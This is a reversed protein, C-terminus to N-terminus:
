PAPEQEVASCDPARGLVIEADRAVAGQGRLTEVRLGLNLDFAGTAEEGPPRDADAASDLSAALAALDPLADVDLAESALALDLSVPEGFRLCGDGAAVQGNATVRLGDLRVGAPRLAYDFALGLEAAGPSGPLPPAWQGSVRGDAGALDAAVELRVVGPLWGSWDAALELVGSEAWTLLGELEGWGTVALEFPAPQGPAFAEIDFRELQWASDEDLHFAFDEVVFRRVRPLQLAGPAAAAEPETARPLREFYFRGGSLLFSNVVLRKDLLPRLALAVAYEGSRGLETDAGAEGLVLDTGSVGVAPLLMVDFEGRLSVPLGLREELARELARRGGAGDLWADILLYAAGFLLALAALILPLLWSLRRLIPRM